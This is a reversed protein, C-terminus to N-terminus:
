IFEIWNIIIDRVGHGIELFVEPLNPLFTPYFDEM